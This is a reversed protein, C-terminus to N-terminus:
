YLIGEYVEFLLLFLLFFIRTLIIPGAAAPDASGTGIGTLRAFHMLCLLPVQTLSYSRPNTYGM